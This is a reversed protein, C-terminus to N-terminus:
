SRAAPERSHYGEPHTSQWLWSSRVITELESHRAQWGLERELRSADAVLRPPDGPRRPGLTVEFDVGSIQKVTNVVQLNTLGHGTGVNYTGGAGGDSLHTLAVVHAASIDLVHIYDRICTGDETDYDDGFLTFHSQGLAAKIASTVLHTAPQHDQGASGDLAAGAANFYRLCITKLGHAQGYWPLSLETLLKSAGYPSDPGTSATEAIPITDPTGYVAATSSFVFYPCEHRIMAELLLATNATNNRFYRAPNESSENVEIFAALHMVAEPRHRTFIDNLSGTDGLDAKEIPASVAEEHGYSLNDVVVVDHHEEQLQRTVFSGIYGAGGTVLIKM